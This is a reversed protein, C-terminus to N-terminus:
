WSIPAVRTIRRRGDSPRSVMRGMSSWYALNRRYPSLRRRPRPGIRELATGLGGSVFDGLMVTPCLAPPWIAMAFDFPRPVISGTLRPFGLREAENIAQVDIAHAAALRVRRCALSLDPGVVQSLPHVLSEALPDQGSAYRM